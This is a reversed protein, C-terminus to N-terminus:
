SNLLESIEGDSYHFKPTDVGAQQLLTLWYNALSTNEKPLVIHRGHRIRDAGGGSLLAPLSTLGHGTRLNSGFSVICSDFLSRGDFDKTEKLRDLFWAFINM